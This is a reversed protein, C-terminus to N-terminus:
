KNFTSVSNDNAFMCTLLVVYLPYNLVYIFSYSYPLSHILISQSKLTKVVHTFHQTLNHSYATQDSHVRRGPPKRVRLRVNANSKAESENAGEAGGLVLSGKPGLTCRIATVFFCLENECKCEQAVIKQTFRNMYGCYKETAKQKAAM